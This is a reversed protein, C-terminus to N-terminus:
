KSLFSVIDNEAATYGDVLIRRNKKLRIEIIKSDKYVNARLRGFMDGIVEYTLNLKKHIIYFFLSRAECYKRESLLEKKSINWTKCVSDMVCDILEMEPRVQEWKRICSELFYRFEPKESNEHVVSLLTEKDIINEPMRM